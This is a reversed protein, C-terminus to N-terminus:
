NSGLLAQLAATVAEPRLDPESGDALAASRILARTLTGVLDQAEELKLWISARGISMVFGVDEPCIDVQVSRGTEWLRKPKSPRTM